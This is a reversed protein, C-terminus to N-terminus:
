VAEEDFSEVLQNSYALLDPFFVQFDGLLQDYLRDVEIMADNLPNPRSLRRSIGGLAGGISERHIYASLWDQEIMRMAVGHSRGDFVRKHTSLTRYTDAIFRPLSVACYDTWHCALFHDYTIDTIIGAFRRFGGGFRRKASLNVPHTDTFTDIKRHQIIGSRIDPHYDVSVNGKVFDGLWGGVVRKESDGALLFHALHNM